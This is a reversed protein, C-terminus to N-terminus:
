RRRSWKEVAIKAAKLVRIPGLTPPGLQNTRWFYYGGEYFSSNDGYQILVGVESEHYINHGSGKKKWALKKRMRMRNWANIANRAIKRSPGTKLCEWCQVSFLGIPMRIVDEEYLSRGCSCSKIKPLPKRKTM